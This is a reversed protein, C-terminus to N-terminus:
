FDKQLHKKALDIMNPSLDSALYSTSPAKIGLLFPIIKGTGCAVELINEAKHMEMM